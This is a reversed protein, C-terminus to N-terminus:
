GCAAGLPQIALPRADREAPLPADVAVAHRGEPPAAVRAHRGLWPALYEGAVKAPLWWLARASVVGDGDGGTPAARLWRPEGGTLLM